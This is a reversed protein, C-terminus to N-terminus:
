IDSHSIQDMQCRFLATWCSSLAKKHSLKRSVYVKAQCISRSMMARNTIQLGNRLQIIAFIFQAVSTHNLPHVNRKNWLQSAAYKTPRVLVKSISVPLEHSCWRLAGYISTEPWQSRAKCCCLSTAHSGGGETESRALEDRSLCAPTMTGTPAAWGCLELIKKLEWIIM